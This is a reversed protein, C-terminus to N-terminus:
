GCIRRGSGGSLAIIEDVFGRRAERLDVSGAELRRLKCRTDRLEM